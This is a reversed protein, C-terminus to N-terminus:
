EARQLTVVVGNFGANGSLTDLHVDSTVDNISAGAHERAIGLRTGDRDHGWGHPQSVVGPVMADTLEVPVVVSGAESGLRALDGNALNRPAADEPHVLLTCRLQGKVLRHSNHMWSNKSRLQRRGILVLEGTTERDAEVFLQDRAERLM